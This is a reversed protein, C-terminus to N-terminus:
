KGILYLITKILAYILSGVLGLMLIMYEFGSVM